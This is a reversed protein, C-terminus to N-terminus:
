GRPRARGIRRRAEGTELIVICREIKRRDNAVAASAAPPSARGSVAQSEDLAGFVPTSATASVSAGKGTSWTERASTKTTRM